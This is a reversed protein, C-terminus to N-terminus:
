AYDFVHPVGNNLTIKAIKNKNVIIEKIADHCFSCLLEHTLELQMKEYNIIETNELYHLVESYKDKNIHLDLSIQRSKKEADTKIVEIQKEIGKRKEAYEEKSMEADSFLFLDKLRELAKQLKEIKENAESSASMAERRMSETKRNTSEITTPVFLAYLTDINSIHPCDAIYRTLILNLQEKTTVIQRIKSLKILNALYQFVFPAMTVDSIYSTNPCGWHQTHGYCYYLSIETKNRRSRDRRSGMRRGCDACYMLQSFLHKRKTRPMNAGNTRSKLMEQAKDFTEKDIIVPYFSKNTIWESEEKRKKRGSSYRNWRYWGKYAVNNIIHYVTTSSWNRGRKSTIGNDNLYNSITATSDGALVMAFIKKVVEAEKENITFTKTDKHYDYGLAVPGGLRGGRSVIDKSVSMVRESTMNRELEAFLMLMKLMAQGIANSTDFKESLSVFSVDKKKLTDLFKSFDILNRSIRDIKWTIVNSIAGNNIDDIMKEFEPRNTDKGSFGADVYYVIDKKDGGNFEVYNAVMHKQSPISEKDVQHATSVRCYCAIKKKDM